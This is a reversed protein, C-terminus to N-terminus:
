LLRTGESAEIRRLANHYQDKLMEHERKVEDLEERLNTMQAQKSKASKLWNAALKQLPKLFGVRQCVDADLGAVEEITRLGYAELDALENLKILPWARLWSGEKPESKSAEYKAWQEPYVFKDKDEVLRVTRDGMPPIIEIFDVADHQAYGAKETKEKNVQYSEYFRFNCGDLHKKIQGNGAGMIDSMRIDGIM